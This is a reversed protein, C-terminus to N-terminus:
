KMAEIIGLIMDCAMENAESHPFNHLGGKM